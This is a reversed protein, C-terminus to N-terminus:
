LLLLLGISRCTNIDTCSGSSCAPAKAVMLALTSAYSEDTEAKLSYFIYMHVINHAILQVRSLLENNKAGLLPFLGHQCVSPFVQSTSPLFTDTNTMVKSLIVITM